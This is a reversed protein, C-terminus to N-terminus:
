KWTIKKSTLAALGVTWQYVVYCIEWFPYAWASAQISLKQAIQNLTITLFLWRILIFGGIVYYSWSIDTSSNISMFWTIIAQAILSDWFLIISISFMATRLKDSFKYHKGVSLHRKKQRYWDNWTEKPSSNTISDLDICITTNEETALRNVILDDDGGTVKLHKHYGNNAM